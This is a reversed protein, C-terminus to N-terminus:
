SAKEAITANFEKVRESADIGFEKMAKRAYEVADKHHLIFDPRSGDLNVQKFERLKDLDPVLNCGQRLFPDIPGTLAVLSLGLIYRRLAKTRDVSLTGDIELVALRRLAALSITADRR